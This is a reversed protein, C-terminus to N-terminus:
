KTSNKKTQKLIKIYSDIGNSQISVTAPRPLDVVEIHM